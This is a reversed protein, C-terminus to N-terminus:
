LRAGKVKPAPCAVEELVESELWAKLEQDKNTIRIFKFEAQYGENIPKAFCEIIFWFRGMKIERALGMTRGANSLWATADLARGEPSDDCELERTWTSVFESLAHTEVELPVEREQGDDVVFARQTSAKANVKVTLARTKTTLARIMQEGLPGVLQKQDLLQDPNRDLEVALRERVARNFDEDIAFPNM